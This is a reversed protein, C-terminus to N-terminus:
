SRPRRGRTPAPDGSLDAGSGPSLGGSESLTPREPVSPPRHFVGTVAGQPLCSWPTAASWTIGLERPYRYNAERSGSRWLGLLPYDSGPVTGLDVKGETVDDIVERLVDLFPRPSHDNVNIPTTLEILPSGGIFIDVRGSRGFLQEYIRISIDAAGSAHPMIRMELHEPLGPDPQGPIRVETMEAAGPPLTALTQEMLSRIGDVDVPGNVDSPLRASVRRRRWGRM